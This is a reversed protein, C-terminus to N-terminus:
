VASSSSRSRSARRPWTCPCQRHRASRREHDDPVVDLAAAVAGVQRQPALERAAAARGPARCRRRCRARRARGRGRRARRSPARGRAPAARRAAGLAGRPRCTSVTTASALRNESARRKASTITGICVIWSSASRSPEQARRRAAVELGAAQERDRDGLASSSKPPSSSRRQRLGVDAGDAAPAERGLRGGHPRQRRRRPDLAHPARIAGSPPTLSRARRSRARGGSADLPELRLTAGGAEHGLRRQAIAGVSSCTPASTTSSRAQASAARRRARDRGSSCRRRGRCGSRTRAGSCSARADAELEGAGADAVREVRLRVVEEVDAAALVAVLRQARAVQGRDLALRQVGRGSAARDHEGDAAAQLQETVAVLEAVLPQGADPQDVEVRAALVTRPQEAVDRDLELQGAARRQEGAELVM